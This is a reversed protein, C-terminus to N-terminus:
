EGKSHAISDLPVVTLGCKEKGISYVVYLKGDHEYAYPYSWQKSKAFGEFRPADSKGHRLRWMRNLTLEGPQGTSIVLTDRNKFNSVLYLQGTSLKGLYAKARPMPYNSPQATSWTKGYNESVSVWAVGGGGRIVAMVKSGDAWITTEAFSPKMDPHYPLRISDWKTLDDSHSIAVVPLGDKDQGGTIFNGNEMQVIQDYPWCNEMVIGQSEWKDSEPNLVFAEGKLGPFRKAKEGVGFRACITWVRDQHVFLVGHSHRDAGEFGAGIVELGSWTKGGDNSRKGRLTEQPGNENTPSNAWNAYFVGDHEVIAAGHLFKHDDASPRHVIRHEIGAAFPIETPDTPFKPGAWLQYSDPLPDVKGPEPVEDGALVVIDDVLYWAGDAIRTGSVLSIGGFTQDIRYAAVTATPKEPLTLSGPKSVWLDVGRADHKMVARIRHWVPQDVSSSPKIEVPVTRWTRTRGDFQQLKGNQVCLNFQSADKGNPEQTWIHFTRGKNASVALSFEISLQERPTEFWKSLAVLGGFSSRKGLLAHHHGSINPTSNKSFSAWGAPSEADELQEFASQYVVEASSNAISGLILLFGILTIRNM